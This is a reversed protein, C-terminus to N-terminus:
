AVPGHGQRHQQVHAVELVTVLGYLIANSFLHPQKREWWALGNYVCCAAALLGLAGHVAGKTVEYQGPQLPRM